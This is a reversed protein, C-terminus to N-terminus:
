KTKVIAKLIIDNDIKFQYYYNNNIEKRYLKILDNEKSEKLYDLQIDSIQKIDLIDSGLNDLIFKVYKVNNTHKTFDIDTYKVKVKEVLDDESFEISGREFTKEFISDVKELDDPFEVTEIKRIKRTTLDIPCYQQKAKYIINKDKDIAEFAIDFRIKSVNIIQAKETFNTEWMPKNVINILTKTIVWASNYKNKMTINDIGFTGLFNTSNDQISNFMSLIKLRANKDCKSYDVKKDVEYFNKM